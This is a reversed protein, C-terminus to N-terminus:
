GMTIGCTRSAGRIKCVNLAGDESWVGVNIRQNTTRMSRETKSTYINTNGEQEHTYFGDMASELYVATSKYEKNSLSVIYKKIEEDRETISGESLMTLKFFYAIIESRLEKCVGDKWLYYKLQHFVHWKDKQIKIRKSIGKAVNIISLDGDSSLIIKAYKKLGSALASQIESMTSLWDSKDKYKGIALGVLHLKRNKLKQFMKKLESGRKGSNKTPIGTGDGEFENTGEPSLELNIRKAYWQASNWLSMLSCKFNTLSGIINHGVRFTSVSGIWGLLEKMFDPIQYQRSVGLLIRTISIQREKGDKSATRIQIQPVWIDGFLTKFKTTVNSTKKRYNDINLIYKLKGSKYNEEFYYLLAESVFQQFLGRCAFLFKITLSKLNCNKVEVEIKTNLEVIMGWGARAPAYKGTQHLM